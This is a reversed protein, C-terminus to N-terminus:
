SAVPSWGWGAIALNYDTSRGAGASKVLLGKAMLDDIDRWATVSSAGTMAVYKRQTLGGEFRGPGAELMRKLVKRQRSNLEVQKHEQWFRARVLSEHILAARVRCSATFVGTFWRLWETVEGSGRQAVNIADDYDRQRRRLESSVGHLRIARPSDQPLAM